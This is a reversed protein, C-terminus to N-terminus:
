TCMTNVDLIFILPVLDRWAGSSTSSKNSHAIALLCEFSRMSRSICIKTMTVEDRKLKLMSTIPIQTVPMIVQVSIVLKGLLLGVEQLRRLGRMGRTHM